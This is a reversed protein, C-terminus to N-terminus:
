QAPKRNISQLKPNLTELDLIPPEPCTWPNPATAGKHSKHRIDSCLPGEPRREFKCLRGYLSVFMWPHVNANCVSQTDTFQPRRRYLFCFNLPPPQRPSSVIDKLNALDVMCPYLLQLTSTPTVFKCHGQFKGLRGYLSLPPRQRQLSATDKFNAFEVM